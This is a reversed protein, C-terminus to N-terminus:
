LISQIADILQDVDSNNNFGHVSVRFGGSRNTLEVGKEVFKKALLALKEEGIGPIRFFIIGSGHLFDNEPAIDTNFVVSLQELQEILYRRTKLISNAISEQDYKFLTELSDTMTLWAPTSTTATM